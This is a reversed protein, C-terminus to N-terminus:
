KVHLDNRSAEVIMLERRLFLEMTYYFFRNVNFLCDFARTNCRVLIDEGIYNRFIKRVHDPLHQFAFARNTTTM